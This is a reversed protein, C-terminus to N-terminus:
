RASESRSGRMLWVRSRENPKLSSNVIAVTGGGNVALKRMLFGQNSGNWGGAPDISGPVPAPATFTDGGDRSVALALGRPYERPNLFLEWLAYLDGTADVSLAPFGAGPASIERPPEFSSAGDTSRTHRIHSPEFPGGSSESYMLHLVGRPDVALKPADSYGPSPAVIRPKGFSAGGDASRAVRIDASEDEGVTWALYVARDPGRALSPARAPAEMGGGAIRRPASFSRGGDASRSFWLAGEYETWAAYVGGGAGAALDLSGNHWIRRSIRGKGDGAVSDSLNVPPSFSRGGDESRAFLIDGGHSGGSFVIEQWLVFVKRSDHPALAVRPLWSFIAPSRSVNVPEGLKVGAASVRQFFVDKRAQDVWVVAVEGQDDLAVSPDDVYDFRSENMRWPGREGHGAAIEISGHWSLPEAAPAAAAHATLLLAFVRKMYQTPGCFARATEVFLTAQPDSTPYDHHAFALDPIGM